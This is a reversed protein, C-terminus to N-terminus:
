NKAINCTHNKNLNERDLLKVGLQSLLIDTEFAKKAPVTWENKTGCIKAVMDNSNGSRMKYLFVFITQITSRNEYNKRKM